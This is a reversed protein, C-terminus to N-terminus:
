RKLKKINKLFICEPAIHSPTGHSHLSENLTNEIEKGDGLDSIYAKYNDDLLINSCKLDRHVINNDHLYKIGKIIDFAINL